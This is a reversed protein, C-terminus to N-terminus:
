VIESLLADEEEWETPASSTESAPETPVARSTDRGQLAGGDSEVIAEGTKPDVNMQVVRDAGEKIADVHTILIVQNFRGRQLTRLMQLVNDRRVGDLSGFVEDLVLLSFEQGAREAVMQSLAMRLALNTVAEEGGSIVPRPEGGDLVLVEYDEDLELATYRGDTLSGLLESAYEALDPRVRDNLQQRLESLVVDLENHHRFSDEMEQLREAASRHRELQAKAHSLERSAVKVDGTAEAVRVDARRRKELLDAHRSKMATHVEPDFTMEDLAQVCTRRRSEADKITKAAKQEEQKLQPKRELTERLWRVRAEHETLTKVRRKAARHADADYTAPMADLRRELKQLRENRADQEARAAEFQPVAEECRHLKARATQLSDDLDARRDLLRALDDPTDALEDLGHRLEAARGRLREARERLDDHVREYDDGLARECMACSGAPGAKEIEEIHSRVDDLRAEVVRLEGVAEERHKAWATQQHAIQAKVNQHETEISRVKERYEDLLQPAKALGALRQEAREIEEILAVRDEKLDGRRQVRAAATEHEALACQVDPLAALRDTLEAVEREAEELRKLETTARALTRKADERERTADKLSEQLAEHKARREEMDQLAPESDQVAEQASAQEERAEAIAKEAQRLAREAADVRKQAEEAEATDRRLIEIETRLENRTARVEDQADKLKEHGLVRSIFHGRQVGKVGTLFDLEKQGTFYTNFFEERGMGLQREMYTSVGDKGAAVPEDGSDVFVEAHYMSRVIRYDHSGFRIVIEVEVRSRAKAGAWRITDTTGRAAVTGYLAWAVAELITSKGSGNPGIIATVGEGLQLDTDVHQRFNHTKISKLIM